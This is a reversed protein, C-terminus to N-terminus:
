NNIVGEGVLKDYLYNRITELGYYGENVERIDDVNLLKTELYEIANLLEKDEPDNYYSPILIGNNLNMAFSYVCNDLIIM